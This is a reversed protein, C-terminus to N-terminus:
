SAAGRLTQVVVSKVNNGTFSFVVAYIPPYFGTGGHGQRGGVGSGKGLGHGNIKSGTTYASIANGPLSLDNSRKASLDPFATGGYRNGKTVVIHVIIM